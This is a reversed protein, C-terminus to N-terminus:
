TSPMGSLQGGAQLLQGVPPAGQLRLLGKRLLLLLSFLPCARCQHRRGHLQPAGQLEQVCTPVSLTTRGRMNALGRCSGM